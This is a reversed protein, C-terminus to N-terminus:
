DKFFKVVRPHSRLKEARIIAEIDAVTEDLHGDRNVVTYDFKKSEQMERASMKLRLQLAEESETRRARLRAELEPLSAILFIFVAGEVKHRITEAGQPDIRLIVDQGRALAQQIEAKSNGYHYGYVLAHELFEARALKRNFDEPTVFHYDVGEIESDRKPRTTNTVLFHFPAGRAKMRKLTVDKGAGSPGSILVFLAPPGAVIREMAKPERTSASLGEDELHIM